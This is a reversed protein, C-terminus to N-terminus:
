NGKDLISKIKNLDELTKKKYSPNRLLFIPSYIVFINKNLFIDLTKIYKFTDTDFAVIVMPNIISIQKILFDKCYNISDNHLNITSPISCKIINTYYIDDTNIKLVNTCMDKLMKGSLGNFPNFTDLTAYDGIFMIKSDINGYSFFRNKNYKGLQCANCSDVITKLESLNDPLIALKNDKLLKLDIPKHYEYGMSKLLNLHRILKQKIKKTM